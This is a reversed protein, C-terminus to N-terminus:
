TQQRQLTVSPTSMGRQANLSVNVCNLHYNFEAAPLSVLQTSFRLRPSVQVHPPCGLAFLVAEVVDEPVLHPTGAYVTEPTLIKSGSSILFDTKV